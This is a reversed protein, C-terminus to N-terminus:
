ERTITIILRWPGKATRQELTEEVHQIEQQKEATDCAILLRKAFTRITTASGVLCTETDM